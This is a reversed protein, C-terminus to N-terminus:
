LARQRGQRLTEARRKMSRQRDIVARGGGRHDKYDDRRGALNHHEGDSNFTKENQKLRSKKAEGSGGEQSFEQSSVCRPGATMHDKGKDEGGGCSPLSRVCGKGKKVM